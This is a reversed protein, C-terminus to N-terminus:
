HAQQRAKVREGPLLRAPGAPPASGSRRETRRYQVFRNLQPLPLRAVLVWESQWHLQGPVRRMIEKDVEVYGNCPPRVRLRMATTVSCLLRVRTLAFDPCQKWEPRLTPAPTVALPTREATASGCRPCQSASASHRFTCVACDWRRDEAANKAAKVAKRARSIEARHKNCGDCWADERGDIVGWREADRLDAKCLLGGRECMAINPRRSEVHM